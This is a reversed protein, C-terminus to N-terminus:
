FMPDQLLDTELADERTTHKNYKENIYDLVAWAVFHEKKSTLPIINGCLIQMNGATASTKRICDAHHVCVLSSIQWKEKESSGALAHLFHLLKFM